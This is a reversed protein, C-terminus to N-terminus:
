IAIHLVKIAIDSVLILAMGIGTTMFLKFKNNIVEIDKDIKEFQTDIKDTISELKMYTWMRYESETMDEVNKVGNPM